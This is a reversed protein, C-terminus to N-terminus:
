RWLALYALLGLSSMTCFVRWNPILYALLAMVPFCLSFIGSCALGAFTRYEIGTLEMSLVYSSLVVGAASFAVLLRFVAFMNFNPSLSYGLGSVVSCLISLFFVKKRGIRDAVTGWIWAGLLGGIFFMSQSINSLSSKDCVLDWQTHTHSDNEFSHLYLLPPSM